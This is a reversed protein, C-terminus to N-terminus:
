LDNLRDLVPWLAAPTTAYDYHSGGIAGGDIVADVFRTVRATTVPTNETGPDNVGGEVTVPRGSLARARRTQDLVWNYVQNGTLPCVEAGPCADRFSWLAMPVVVDSRAGVAAWPFGEWNNGPDTAFPSPVIAATMTDTAARVQALHDVLRANFQARTVEDLREIDVGVADFRQGGPSTFTAIAVTRRVDRDMDGYAPLYWGVVRIGADHAADLWAGAEAADHFDDTSTFRATALFLTRVDHTVMDAIATEPDLTAYDFVDVWTSLRRFPLLADVSSWRGWATTPTSRTATAYRGGTRKTAVHVADGTASASPGSAPTDGLSTWGSWTGNVLRRTWMATGTRRAFVDLRGPAPAAVAPQSILGGSLTRWASWGAGDSFSRHLLANGSGRAVVDIRGSGWSTAAPSSTLAGGRKSWGSWGQGSVYTRQRLAGNTARVFVDLRGSGWSAVAPASALTGGLSEWGSWSGNRYWRHVLTNNTGRAFVDIRGPAWSVAAPQSALTGGLDLQRTWSGGAPRYRHALRGSTTRWFLDVRGPELGTVAPSTVETSPVPAVAATAPVPTAVVACAVALTAVTAFTRWRGPRRQSARDARSHTM